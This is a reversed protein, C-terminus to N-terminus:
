DNVNGMASFFTFICHQIFILSKEANNPEYIALQMIQGQFSNKMNRLYTVAKHSKMLYILLIELRGQTAKIELWEAPREETPVDVLDKFM